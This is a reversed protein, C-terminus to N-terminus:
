GLRKELELRSAELNDPDAYIPKEYTITWKSFLHPLRKQDWGSLRWERTTHFTIPLIPLGTQASMQLAGIKAKKAPGGPGDIAVTTNEGQKLKDIVKELAGRGNNGSSGLALGTVGKWYLVLHVPKMYWIPHNMWYFPKDYRGKSVFYLLLDQHWLVYIGVKPLKGGEIIFTKKTFTRHLKIAGVSFFALTYSWLLFFPKLWWPINDVRYAM